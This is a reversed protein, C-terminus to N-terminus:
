RFWRGMYSVLVEQAVERVAERVLNLHSGGMWCPPRLTVRKGDLTRLKASLTPKRLKSLTWEPEKWIPDDPGLTVEEVQPRADIRPPEPPPPKAKAKEAKDRFELINELLAVVRDLKKGFDDSRRQQHAREFDVSCDGSAYVHGPCDRASSCM